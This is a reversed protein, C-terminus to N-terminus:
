KKNSSYRKLLYGQQSGSKAYGKAKYKDTARFNTKPSKERVKKNPTSKNANYNEPLEQHQRSSAKNLKKFLM